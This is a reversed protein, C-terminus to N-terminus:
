RKKPTKKLATKKKVTKKTTTKKTPKKKAPKKDKTSFCSACFLGKDDVFGPQWQITGTPTKTSLRVNCIICYSHRVQRDKEM